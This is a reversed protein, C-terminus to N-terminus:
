SWAWIIGLLLLGIHATIWILYFKGLSREWCMYKYETRICRDWNKALSIWVGIYSLIAIAISVAQILIKLKEM